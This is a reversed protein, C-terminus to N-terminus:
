AETEHPACRGKPSPKELSEFLINDASPVTIMLSREGNMGITGPGTQCDWDLMWLSKCSALSRLEIM